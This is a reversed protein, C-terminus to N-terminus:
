VQEGGQQKQEAALASKLCVLYRSEVKFPHFAAKTTDECSEWGMAPDCHDEELLSYDDIRTSNVFRKLCQDVWMDEGWACDGSCLKQFYHFCGLFMSGMANVANQSFIELPGHMGFKCNNFYVGQGYGGVAGKEHRALIPRLRHPFFVTDPDAKVIWNFLLYQGDSIVQRWVATFINLNLATGFEGGVECKQSSLVRRTILGPALVLAQNSYVVYEDCGFIGARHEYQMILLGQEYSYPVMLAMCLMSSPKGLRSPKPLPMTFKQVDSEPWIANEPTARCGCPLGSIVGEKATMNPAETSGLAKLFCVDSLGPVGRKAGWTFAGCGPNTTCAKQCDYSSNVGKVSEIARQTKLDIDFILQPCDMNEHVLKSNGSAPRCCPMGSIVGEKTVMGLTDQGLKKLFCVDTLGPTNRDLGWVWADCDGNETCAKQCEAATKVGAVSKLTDGNVADKHVFQVPCSRVAQWKLVKEWEGQMKKFVKHHAASKIAQEKLMADRMKQEALIEEHTMGATPNPPTPDGKIHMQSQPPVLQQKPVPAGSGGNGCTSEFDPCCDGFDRCDAVCQCIAGKHPRDTCGSAACSSEESTDVIRDPLVEESDQTLCHSKYDDCCNGDSICSSSCQCRNYGTFSGCGYTACRGAADKAGSDLMERTQPGKGNSMSEEWLRQPRSVHSIPQPYRLAYRDNAQLAHQRLANRAVAIAAAM